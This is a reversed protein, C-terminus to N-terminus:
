NAKISHYAGEPRREKRHLLCVVHRSRDVRLRHRNLMPNVPSKRAPTRYRRSPGLSTHWTPPDQNPFHHPERGHRLMGEYLPPLGIWRLGSLPHYIEDSKRAAAVPRTMLAQVQGRLQSVRRCCPSLSSRSDREYAAQICLVLGRLKHSRKRSRVLRWSWSAWCRAEGTLAAASRYGAFLPRASTDSHCGTSGAEM